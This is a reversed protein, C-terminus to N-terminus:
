LSAEGGLGEPVGRSAPGPEPPPSLPVMKHELSRRVVGEEKGVSSGGGGPLRGSYKEGLRTLHVWAAMNGEDSRPDDETVVADTWRELLATLELPGPGLDVQTAATDRGGGGAHLPHSYTHTRPHLLVRDSSCLNAPRQAPGPHQLSFESLILKGWSSLPQSGWGQQWRAFCEQKQGWLEQGTHTPIGGTPAVTM